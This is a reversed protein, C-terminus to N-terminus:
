TASGLNPGPMLDWTFFALPMKCSFNEPDFKNSAHFNQALPVHALGAGAVM